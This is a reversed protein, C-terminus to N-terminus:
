KFESEPDYLDRIEAYQDLDLSPITEKKTLPRPIKLPDFSEGNYTKIKIDKTFLDAYNYNTTKEDELRVRFYNKYTDEIVGIKGLKKGRKSVPEVILIEEGILDSLNSKLQEFDSKIYGM